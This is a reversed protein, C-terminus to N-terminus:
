DYKIYEEINSYVARSLEDAQDVRSFIPSWPSPAYTPFAYNIGVGGTPDSSDPCRINIQTFGFMQAEIEFIVPTMSYINYGSLKTMIQHRLKDAFNQENIYLDPDNDITSKGNYPVVQIGSIRNDTAHAECNSARVCINGLSNAMMLELINFIVEQAIVEVPSSTGFHRAIETFDIPPYRRSDLIVAGGARISDEFNPFMEAIDGIRWGRFNRYTSAGNLDRMFYLFEDHAVRSEANLMETTLESLVGMAHEQRDYYNSDSGEAVRHHGKLANTLIDEAYRTPNYNRRNSLIVGSQHIAGTSTANIVDDHDIGEVEAQQLADDYAMNDGVLGIVDCPRVTALGYEQGYEGDNLMYDVRTGLSQKIQTLGDDGIGGTMTGHTKWSYVPTFIANESLEGDLDNGTVYGIVTMYTSSIGGTQIAFKLEILGKNYESFGGRIRAYATPTAELGGMHAAHHTIDKMSLSGHGRDLILEEVAEARLYPAPARIAPPHSYNTLGIKTTLLVLTNKKAMHNGSTYM